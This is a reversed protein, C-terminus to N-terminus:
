ITGLELYDSKYKQMYTELVSIRFHLNLSKRSKKLREVLFSDYCEKMCIYLFFTFDHSYLPSGHKLLPFSFHFARFIQATIYIFMKPWMM